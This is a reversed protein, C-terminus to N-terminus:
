AIQDPKAALMNRGNYGITAGGAFALLLKEVESAKRRPHALTILWPGLALVDWIRLDTTKEGRGSAYWGIGIGAIASLLFAYRSM